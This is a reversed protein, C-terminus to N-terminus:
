KPLAIIFQMTLSALKRMCVVFIPVSVAVEAAATCM